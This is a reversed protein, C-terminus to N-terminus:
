LSRVKEERLPAPLAGTKLATVLDQAAEDQRSPDSGGMTISARGGLIPENIIPASTITGDLIIALKRGAIETTVDGLVHAGAKDLEVVVVARSTNPDHSVKADTISRGTLRARAELLYTRAYPRRDKAQDPSEVREYGIRRDPPVAFSPDRKALDALYREIVQRGSVMCTVMDNGRSPDVRAFCGLRTAEDATVSTDRDHALLYADTGRKGNESLWSDVDARIDAAVADRDTASGDRTMGVHEVLKTMYSSGSDVVAFELNGQRAFLRALEPFKDEPLEVVISDGKAHVVADRLGRDALRARITEVTRDLTAQRLRTTAAATARACIAASADPCDHLELGDYARLKNAIDDRHAAETSVVVITGDAALTVKGALKADALQQELDRQVAAAHDAIAKDLDVSYTVEIRKVSAAPKDRPHDRERDGNDHQERKGGCGLVFVLLVLWRM